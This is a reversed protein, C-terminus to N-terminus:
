NSKGPGMLSVETLDSWHAKRRSVEYNSESVIFVMNVANKQPNIAEIIAIIGITINPNIKRNFSFDIMFVNNLCSVFHISSSDRFITSAYIVAQLSFLFQSRVISTNDIIHM